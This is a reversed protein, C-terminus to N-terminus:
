FKSKWKGTLEDYKIYGISEFEKVKATLKENGIPYKFGLDNTSNLVIVTDKIEKKNKTNLHSM